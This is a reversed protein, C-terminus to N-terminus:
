VYAVDDSSLSMELGAPNLFDENLQEVLPLIKKKIEIVNSGTQRVVSVWINPAGNSYNYRRTEAHDLKVTAIDKLRTIADGRRVVILERLDDLDKFRGVTRMLYRRKGSDLDGASIDTNRQRIATRLQTLSIDREALRAPDVAIRIQRPAGGSIRVRSVGEIREMPPRIDDAIFDRMMELDIGKPNGPLPVTRFYLFPAYSFSSTRIIPEDVNEPYSPVQSLANNVEILAKQTDTGYPFELEIEARGTGAVSTMRQLNPLTRLYLEQEILIEKEIDQPTAGPWATDVSIVRTELDPIMQVPVRTAAVIGLLLIMAVLVAVLTGRKLLADIM